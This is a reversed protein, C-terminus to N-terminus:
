KNFYPNQRALEAADARTHVGLRSLIASVHHDTTKFSIHLRASIEANSLGDVLLELIQVQRSTLSFPNARTSPRPSRPLKHPHLSQLQHLLAEAAQWAGLREFLNLASSQAQPDGEALARAQEYPCGLLEWAQAAAQWDGRIQLTYPKAMWETLSVEDGAKWRWYALEGALWPHRKSIALDYVSRAEVAAAPPNGALWAAEARVCRVLGLYPLTGTEIASVLAENLVAEAGPEGKRALLLGTAALTTIRTIAPLGHNQMLIMSLGAAEDWRGLHIYTIIQWAQMYRYYIDLGRDTSYAIGEALYHEAAHFSYLEALCSGLYAYLNAINRDQGAAQAVRLRDTLHDLGRQYDLFLWASGVAIHAMALNNQDEFDRSLGIAKEGWTIAETYDRRALSLTSQVRYALALEVGPPFGGLLELAANNATEAAANKGHNRLMIALVSLTEAQRAPENLHEWIQAARRQADIAESQRESVNCERAFDELMAAYEPLQLREVYSLALAYLAAAERHAGAAAAQDAAAPAYELVSQSDGSGEAHHALRALNGQTAPSSKLAALVQGHLVPIRQPSISELIIQRTLDHRFALLNGQPLLLGAAINEDVVGPHAESVHQLLWPEIRM